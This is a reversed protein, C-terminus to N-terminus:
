NCLVYNDFITRALSELLGTLPQRDSISRENLDIWADALQTDSIHAERVFDTQPMQEFWIWKKIGYACQDDNMDYACEPLHDDCVTCNGCGPCAERGDWYHKGDWVGSESENTM